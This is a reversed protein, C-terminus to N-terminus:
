KLRMDQRKLANRQTEEDEIRGGPLFYGTPTKITAIKGEDNIGIGYVGARDIYNEGNLKEGFVKEDDNVVNEPMNM